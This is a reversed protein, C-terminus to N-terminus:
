KKTNENEVAKEIEMIRLSDIKARREQLIMEHTIEEKIQAQLNNVTTNIGVIAFATILTIIIGKQWLRLRFNKIM